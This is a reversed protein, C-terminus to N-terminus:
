LRRLLLTATRSGGQAVASAEPGSRVKIQQAFLFNQPDLAFLKRAATPVSGSAITVEGDVNYLGYFTAGAAGDYAVAFTIAAATWAVPTLIGVLDYGVLSGAASLSQGNAIVVDVPYVIGLGLDRAEGYEM